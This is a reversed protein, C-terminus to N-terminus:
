GGGGRGRLALVARGRLRLPARSAGAGWGPATPPGRGCSGPPRRPGRTDPVGVTTECTTATDTGTEAEAPTPTPTAGTSPTTAPKATSSRIGAGGTSGPLDDLRLRGGGAALDHQGPGHRDARRRCRCPGAWSLSWRRVGPMVVVHDEGTGGAPRDVRAVQRSREKAGSSSFAPTGLTRNWSRRWVHARQEQTLAYVWTTDSVSPWVSTATVRSRYSVHRRRKLLLGCMGEHAPLAVRQVQSAPEAGPRSGSIRPRTLRKRHHSHPHTREILSADCSDFPPM